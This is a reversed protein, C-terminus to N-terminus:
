TFSNLSIAAVYCVLARLKWILCELSLSPFHLYQSGIVLTLPVSLRAQETHIEHYGDAPGQALPGTTTTGKVVRWCRAMLRGLVTTPHLAVLTPVLAEVLGRLGELMPPSMLVHVDGRCGYWWQVASYCLLSRSGSSCRSNSLTETPAHGLRPAAEGRWLPREEHEHCWTYTPSAVTAWPHSAPNGAPPAPTCFAPWRLHGGM